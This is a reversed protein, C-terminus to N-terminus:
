KAHRQRRSRTAASDLGGTPCRFLRGTKWGQAPYLAAENGLAHDAFVTRAYGYQDRGFAALSCARGIDQFVASGIGINGGAGYGAAPM